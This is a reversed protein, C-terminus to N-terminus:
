KKAQMFSMSVGQPSEIVSYRGVKPIDRPQVVVNAGLKKARQTVDDCDKVTFYTDWGAAKMGMGPDKNMMGCVSTEGQKFIIYPYDATKQSVPEWHFVNTYFSGARDMNDTNLQFWGPAGNAMPDAEIGAFMHPQMVSVTVGTPDAVTAYRGLDLFMEPESVVKGGHQRVAKLTEDINDVAIFKEIHAPTGEPMKKLDCFGAVASGELQCIAYSGSGMKMDMPQWGLLKGTFEQSAKINNTMFDIWCFQGAKRIVKSM